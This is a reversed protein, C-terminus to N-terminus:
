LWGERAGPPRGPLGPPFCPTLGPFAASPLPLLRGFCARIFCADDLTRSGTPDERRAGGAAGEPVHERRQLLRQLEDLAALAGISAPISEFKGGPILLSRIAKLKRVDGRPDPTCRAGARELFTLLEHSM